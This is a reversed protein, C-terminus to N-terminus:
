RARGSPGSVRVEGAAFSAISSTATDGVAVATRSGDFGRWLLFLGGAVGFLCPPLLAALDNV